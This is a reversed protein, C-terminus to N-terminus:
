EEFKIEYKSKGNTNYLDITPYNGEGETSFNRFNIKYGNKDFGETLVQEVPSGDLFKKEINRSEMIEVARARYFNYADKADGKLMRVTKNWGRTGVNRMETLTMNRIDSAYYGAVKYDLYYNTKNDNIANM